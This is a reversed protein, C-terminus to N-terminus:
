WFLALFTFGALGGFFFVSALLMVVCTALADSRAREYYHYCDLGQRANPSYAKPKM